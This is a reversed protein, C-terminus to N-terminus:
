IGVNHLVERGIAEQEGIGVVRGEIEQGDNLRIRTTTFTQVVHANTLLFGDPTFLIGSGSGGGRPNGVRLNVVVPQLDQAIRVVVSSYADLAEEESPIPPTPPPLPPDSDDHILHPVIPAM